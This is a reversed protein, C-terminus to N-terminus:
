LRFMSASHEYMFVVLPFVFTFSLQPNEKNPSPSFYVCPIVSWFCIQNRAMERESYDFAISIAFILLDSPKVAQYNAWAGKFMACLAIWAKGQCLIFLWPSTGAGVPRTLPKDQQTWTLCREMPVLLAASACTDRPQTEPKTQSTHPQWIWWKRASVSEGWGM